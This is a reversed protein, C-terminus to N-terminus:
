SDLFWNYQAYNVCVYLLEKNVVGMFVAIYSIRVLIM